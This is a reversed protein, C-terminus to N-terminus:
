LLLPTRSGQQLDPPVPHYKPCPVGDHFKGAHPLNRISNWPSMATENLIREISKWRSKDSLCPAAKRSPASTPETYLPRKQLRGNGMIAMPAGLKNPEALCIVLWRIGVGRCHCCYPRNLYKDNGCFQQTLSEREISHLVLIEGKATNDDVKKWCNTYQHIDRLSAKIPAFHPHDGLPPPRFFHRRSRPQAVITATCDISRLHNWLWGLSGVYSNLESSSDDPDFHFDQPFTVTLRSAYPFHPPSSNPDSSTPSSQTAASHLRRRVVRSVQFDPSLHM